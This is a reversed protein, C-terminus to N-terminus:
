KPHSVLLFFVALSCMSLPDRFVSCSVYFVSWRGRVVTRLGFFVVCWPSHALSWPGCFAMSWPGCVVSWQGGRVVSWPGDHVVSWPSGHDVISRLCFCVMSWPYLVRVMSRLGHVVSKPDCNMLWSPGYVVMSWWPGCVGMGSGSLTAGNKEYINCQGQFPSDLAWLVCCLLCM